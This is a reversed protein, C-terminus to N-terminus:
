RAPSNGPGAARRTRIKDDLAPQASAEMINIDGDLEMAEAVQTNPLITSFRWQGKEDQWKYVTTSELAPAGNLESVNSTVLLLNDISTPLEIEWDDLNM